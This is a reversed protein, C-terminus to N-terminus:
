LMGIAVGFAALVPAASVEFNAFAGNPKATSTSSSGSGTSSSSATSAVPNDTPTSNTTPYAAGLPKVEFPLSTAYVKTQDLSDALMLTYNLAPILAAQQTTISHSCDANPINAVIAEPAALITLNTNAVLLIYSTAPPSDNCSWVLTNQSEAVWWLNPGGPSLIQFTAVTSSVLASIVALSALRPSFM